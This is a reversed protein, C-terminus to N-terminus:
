AGQQLWGVVDRTAKWFYWRHHKQEPPLVRQFMAAMEMVTERPPRTYLEAAHDITWDELRAWAADALLEDGAALAFLIDRFANWKSMDALVELAAVRAKGTGYELVPLLRSRVDAAAGRRLLAVAARRVRANPDDLAAVARPLTAALDLRGLGSIVTARVRARPDHEHALIRRCDDANGTEALCGILGVSVAQITDLRRRCREPFEGCGHRSLYFRAAERVSVSDDWIMDSVQAELPSWLEEPIAHLALLRVRAAKEALLKSLLPLREQPCSDLVQRLGWTRIGMIADSAARHALDDHRGPQDAMTRYFFLRLRPAVKQLLDMIVDATAAASVAQVIRQQAGSLDARRSVGMRLILDGHGLWDEPSAVTLLRTLLRDAAQRVEPVWDALRVIAYPVAAPPALRELHELAAQRVYGSRHFSAVGLLHVAVAPPFVALPSVHKPDLWMSSLPEYLQSWDQPRTKEMLRAITRGAEAAVVADRDRALYILHGADSPAGLEVIKRLAAVRAKRRPGRLLTPKRHIVAFWTSLENVSAESRRTGSQGITVRVTVEQYGCRLWVM